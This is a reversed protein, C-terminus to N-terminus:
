FSYGLSLESDWGIPELNGEFEEVEDKEWQEDSSTSLSQIVWLDVGFRVTINLGNDLQWRKGVNPTVAFGRVSLTTTTTGASDTMAQSATGFAVKANIGAFGSSMRGLWHWRYGVSGTFADLSMDGRERGYHAEILAGRSGRLWEVNGGYMGRVLTSVPDLDLNISVTREPAATKVAALTEAAAIGPVLSLALVTAIAPKM